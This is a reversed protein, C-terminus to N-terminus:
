RKIARSAKTLAVATRANKDDWAAGFVYTAIISGAFALNGLSVDRHLASGTDAVIIYLNTGACYALAGFVAWRRRTWDGPFTPRKM